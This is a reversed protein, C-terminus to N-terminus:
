KFRTPPWQEFAPQYSTISVSRGLLWKHVPLSTMHWTFVLGSFPTSEVSAVTEEETHTQRQTEEM